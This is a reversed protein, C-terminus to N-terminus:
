DIHWCWVFMLIRTSTIEYNRLKVNMAPCIQNMMISAVIVELLEQNKFLIKGDDVPTCM